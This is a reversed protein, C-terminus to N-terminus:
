SVFKLLGWTRQRIGKYKFSSNEPGGYGKMCGKKSGVCPAKCVSKTESNCSDLQADHEEWKALTKAVSLTADQRSRSKWKRCCSFPLSM